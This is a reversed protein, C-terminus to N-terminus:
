VLTFAARLLARAVDNGPLNQLVVFNVWKRIVKGPTPLRFRRGWM